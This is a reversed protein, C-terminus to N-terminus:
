VLAIRWIRRRLEVFEPPAPTPTLHPYVRNSLFVCYRGRIFDIWFGCGTFGLHGFFVRDGVKFIEFGMFFRREENNGKLPLAQEISKLLPAIKKLTFQCFIGVDKLTSFIGAHLSVGGMAHSNEDHVRKEKEESTPVIHYKPPIDPFFFTDKLGIESKMKEFIENVKQGCIKEVFYTLCIFGIDSYLYRENVRHCLKMKWAMEMIKERTKEKYPTDQTTPECTYIQAYTYLPAYACFGAKHALIDSVKIKDKEELDEVEKPLVEAIKREQIKLNITIMTGAIPKTLSAIDFLSNEDSEIYHEFFINPKGYENQEETGEGVGVACSTYLKESFGKEALERIKSFREEIDTM